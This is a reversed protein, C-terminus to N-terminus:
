RRAQIFYPHGISSTRRGCGTPNPNEGHRVDGGHDEDDDVVDRQSRCWVTLEEPRASRTATVVVGPTLMILAHFSRGNLPLNDIFARDIVTSVTGSRTDVIPAGGEVTIAESVQGLSMELDITLADQVHLTVAPKILTKFGPKEIEIRYPGPPLNTVYYSGSDNTTTEHRVSTETNIAAIRANVIVANSPDTVRGALSAHTSQARVTSASSLLLVLAIAQRMRVALRLRELALRRM